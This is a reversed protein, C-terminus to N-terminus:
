FNEGEGDMSYIFVPPVYVELQAGQLTSVYVSVCSAAVAIASFATAAWGSRAGHVATDVAAKVPTPEERARERERRDQPVAVITGGGSPGLDGRRIRRAFYLGKPASRHCVIPHPILSVAATVVGRHRGARHHGGRAGPRRSPRLVPEGDPGAPAVMRF